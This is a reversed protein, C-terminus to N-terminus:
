IFNNYIEEIYWGFNNKSCIVIQYPPLYKKNNIAKKAEEISSFVKDNIFLKKLICNGKDFYYVKYKM